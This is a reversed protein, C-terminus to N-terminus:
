HENHKFIGSMLILISLLISIKIISPEVANNVYIRIQSFFLISPTRSMVETVALGKIDNKPFMENKVRLHEVNATVYEKIYLEESFSYLLILVIFM